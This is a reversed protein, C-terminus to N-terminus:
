LRLVRHSIASRKNRCRAACLYASSPVTPSALPIRFKWSEAHAQFRCRWRMVHEHRRRHRRYRRHRTGQRPHPRFVFSLVSTSFTAVFRTGVCVKSRETAWARQRSHPGSRYRQGPLRRSIRLTERLAMCIAGVNALSRTSFASQVSTRWFRYWTHRRPALRGSSSHINILVVPM